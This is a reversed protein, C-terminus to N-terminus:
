VQRAKQISGKNLDGVHIVQRRARPEPTREFPFIAEFRRSTKPLCILLPHPHPDHTETQNAPTSTMGPRSQSSPPPKHLWRNAYLVEQETREETGRRRLLSSDAKWCKVRNFSRQTQKGGTQARLTNRAKVANTERRVVLWMLQDRLVWFLRHRVVNFLLNKRLSHKDIKKQRQKTM